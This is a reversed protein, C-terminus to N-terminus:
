ILWQIDKLKNVAAIAWNITADKGAVISTVAISGVIARQLIQWAVDFVTATWHLVM